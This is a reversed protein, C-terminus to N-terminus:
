ESGRQGGADPKASLVINKVSDGIARHCYDDDFLKLTKTPNNSADNIENTNILQMEILRRVNMAMAGKRLGNPLLGGVTLPVVVSCSSFM